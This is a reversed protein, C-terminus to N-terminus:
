RRRRPPASQAAPGKGARCSSTAGASRRAPAASRPRWRNRRRPRKGSLGHLLAIDAEHELVVCQKPVHRHGFVDAKAQLHAVAAVARGVGLDLPAGGFQEIEHLEGAEVLAVGRLQGASLPLAHRQGAREGDLRPHQQEVLREACEVCLDSALQAAPQALDMVLGAVGRHEDRVVLLLCQLEGVADDDHALARDFLDAAGVIDIVAGVRREDVAEDAFELESGTLTSSPSIHIASRGM